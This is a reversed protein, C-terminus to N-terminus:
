SQKTKRVFNLTLLTLGLVMLLPVLYWYVIMAIGDVLVMMASLGFAAGSIWGLAKSNRVGPPYCLSILLCLIVGAAVIVSVVAWMLHMDIVPPATSRLAKVEETLSHTIPMRSQFEAEALSGIVM